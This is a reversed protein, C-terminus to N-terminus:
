HQQWLARWAEKSAPRRQCARQADATRGRQNGPLAAWGLPHRWLCPWRMTCGQLGHKVGKPRHSQNIQHLTSRMEVLPLM